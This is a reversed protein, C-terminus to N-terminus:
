IPLSRVTVGRHSRPAASRVKAWISMLWGPWNSKGKAKPLKNIAIKKM